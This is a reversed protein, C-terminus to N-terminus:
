LLHTRVTRLRSLMAALSQLAAVSAAAGSSRGIQLATRPAIERPAASWEFPERLGPNGSDESVRDFGTM